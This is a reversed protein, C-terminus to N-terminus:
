RDALLKLCLGGRTPCASLLSAFPLLVFSPVPCPCHPLPAYPHPSGGDTTPRPYSIAAPRRRPSDRVFAWVIAPPAFLTCSIPHMAPIVPYSAMYLPLQIRLLPVIRCNVIKSRTLPTSAIQSGGIACPPTLGGNRMGARRRAPASWLSMLLALQELPLFARSHLPPM